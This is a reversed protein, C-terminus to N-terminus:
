EEGEEFSSAMPFEINQKEKSTKANFNNFVWTEPPDLRFNMRLTILEERLVKVEKIEIDKMFEIYDDAKILISPIMMNTIPPWMTKRLWDKLSPAKEFIEELSQPKEM